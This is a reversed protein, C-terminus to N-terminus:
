GFAHGLSVMTHGWIKITAHFSNYFLRWGNRDIKNRFFFYVGVNVMHAAEHCFWYIAHAGLWSESWGPCGGLRILLRWQGCHLFSPDKAVWQACLSTQDSPTSAWDSKLRRQACDSQQNQWSAAWKYRICHRWIKNLLLALFPRVLVTDWYLYKKKRYNQGTSCKSRFWSFTVALHKCLSYYCHGINLCEYFTSPLLLSFPWLCKLM